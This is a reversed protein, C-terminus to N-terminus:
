NFVLNLSMLLNKSKNVIGQNEGAFYCNRKLSSIAKLSETASIKTASLAVLNVHGPRLHFGKYITMPFSGRSDIMATLGQFDTSVSGPAV